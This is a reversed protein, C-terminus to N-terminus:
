IPVETERPEQLSEPPVQWIRLINVVDEETPVHIDQLGFLDEHCCHLDRTIIESRIRFRALRYAVDCGALYPYQSKFGPIGGDTRFRFITVFERCDDFQPPLETAVQGITTLIERVREPLKTTMTGFEMAKNARVRHTDPDHDSCRPAKPTPSPCWDFGAFSQGGLKRRFHREAAFGQLDVDFEDAFAKMFDLGDDGELGCDSQLCTSDSLKDYPFVLTRAVFRKVNDAVQEPSDEAWIWSVPLGLERCRDFLESQKSGSYQRLLKGLVSRNDSGAEQALEKASSSDGNALVLIAHRAAPQLNVSSLADLVAEQEEPSFTKRVSDRTVEDIFRRSSDM